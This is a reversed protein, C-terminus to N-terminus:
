FSYILGIGNQSIGLDLYAEDKPQTQIFNYIDVASNIKSNGRSYRVLSAIGFSAAGSATILGGLGLFIGSALDNASFAMVWLVTSGIAFVGATIGYIRARNRSHLGDLYIQLAEPQSMMFSQIEKYNYEKSAVVYKRGDRSIIDSQAYSTAMSISFFALLLFYFKM